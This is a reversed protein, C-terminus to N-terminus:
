ADEEDTRGLIADAVERVAGRGGPAKTVYRAVALVDPHADAVAIPVGVKALAPIDPIDDGVFAVDDPDLRREALIRDVARGKSPEGLLVIAMGLEEARRRAATDERGSIVGTLVGSRHLRHIGVGDRVDFAKLVRGEADYYLRGDTLVGDVDLLLLRVHRVGEHYLSHPTM